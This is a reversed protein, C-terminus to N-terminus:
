RAGKRNRPFLENDIRVLRAACRKTDGYTDAYVLSGGNVKVYEDLASNFHRANPAHNLVTTRDGKKLTYTNLLGAPGNFSGEPTLDVQRFGVLKWGNREM